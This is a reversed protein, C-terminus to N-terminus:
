QITHDNEYRENITDSPIVASWIRWVKVPDDTGENSSTPLEEKKGRPEERDHSNEFLRAACIFPSRTKSCAIVFEAITSM